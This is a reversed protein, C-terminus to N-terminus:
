RLLPSQFRSYPLPEVKEFALLTVELTREGSERHRKPLWVGAFEEWAEFDLRRTTPGEDDVLARVRFDADLELRCFPGGDDFLELSGDAGNKVGVKERTALMRLVRPLARREGHIAREIQARPLEMLVQEGDADRELWLDNGVFGTRINLKSRGDDISQEILTLPRTLRRLTTSRATHTYAPTETVTEIELRVSDLASWAEAGGVATLLKEARLAAAPESREWATTSVDIAGEPVKPGVTCFRTAAVDFHLARRELFTEHDLSAIRAGIAAPTWAFTTLAVVLQPRTFHSVGLSTGDWVRARAAEFAEHEVTAARAAGLRRSLADISAGTYIGPRWPLSISHAEVHAAFLEAEVFFVAADLLDQSYAPTLAWVGPEGISESPAIAHIPVTAGTRTWLLLPDIPSEDWSGEASNSLGALRGLAIAAFREDDTLRAVEITSTRVLWDGGRRGVDAPPPQELDKADAIRAVGDARTTARVGTPSPEQPAFSAVLVFAAALIPLM